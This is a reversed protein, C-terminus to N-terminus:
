VELLYKDSYKKNNTFNFDIKGVFVGNSGVQNIIVKKGSLNSIILPEELLTHTHGGIILDINSTSKALEIDSIKDNQYQHGLHSICIVLDCKKEFKLKTTMDSAIELPDYYKTEKYLLPNVLGMLEIGLGFVGIKIGGKNYIKYNDVLGELETNIFDYNSSIFQFENNLINKKLTKLGADFEHNGITAANYGMKKMLNLELDGQFFNFYPTGQFIDGADFVLTNANMSILKEFLKARKAFGGKNPYHQHNSPFPEIQSHVDNTHLITIKLDKSNINCSSIGMVSLSALSSNYIFKRRNM